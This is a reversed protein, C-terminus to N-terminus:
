IHILSLVDDKGLQGRLAPTLIGVSFCETGEGIITLVQIDPNATLDRAVTRLSLLLDRSLLNQDQPRNLLIRAIRGEIQFDFGNM